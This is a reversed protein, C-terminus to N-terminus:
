KAPPAAPKAAPAAAPKAGPTPSPKPAAAAAPTKELVAGKEHVTNVRTEPVKVIQADPEKPPEHRFPMVVVVTEKRKDPERTVKVTESKGPFGLSKPSIDGPRVDESPAGPKAVIYEELKLTPEKPGSQLMFQMRDVDSDIFEAKTTTLEMQQIMVHLLTHLINFNVAGVEPSGLALDLLKPLSMQLSHDYVM